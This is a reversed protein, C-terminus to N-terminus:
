TVQVPKCIKTEEVGLSEIHCKTVVAKAAKLLISSITM